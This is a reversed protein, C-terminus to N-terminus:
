WSLDQKPTASKQIRNSNAIEDPHFENAKTKAM